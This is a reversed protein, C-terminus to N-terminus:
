QLNKKMNKENDKNESGNKERSNNKGWPDTESENNSPKNWAM